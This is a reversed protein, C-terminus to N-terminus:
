TKPISEPKAKGSPRSRKVRPEDDQAEQSHSRSMSHSIAYAGLSPLRGNSPGNRHSFLHHQYQYPIRTGLEHESREVQSAANALMNIDM